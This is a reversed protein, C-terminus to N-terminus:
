GPILGEASEALMAAVETVDADAPPLIADSEVLEEDPLREGVARVKALLEDLARRYASEDGGSVASELAADLGNLLDVHEDAVRWQGEGLVRVIV